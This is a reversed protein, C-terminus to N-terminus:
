NHKLLQKFLMMHLMRNDDHIPHFENIYLQDNLEHVPTLNLYSYQKDRKTCILPEWLTKSFFQSMRFNM